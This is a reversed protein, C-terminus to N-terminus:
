EKWEDDYKPHTEAKNTLILLITKFIIALDLKITQNNVHEIDYEIRKPWSLSTNGNIQALGTLGPRVEFRKLQKNNMLNTDEVVTPRPGVISMDGLLVNIIQPLEDIKLKRLLNGYKTVRPDNKLTVLSEYGEISKMSKIKYLNFQKLNKGVRVQKYIGNSHHIINSIIILIVLIWGFFILFTLSLTIDLIRKIM